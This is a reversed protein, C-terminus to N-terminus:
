GLVGAFAAVAVGGALTTLLGGVLTRQLADVRERLSELERRTSANHAEWAPVPVGASSRITAELREGLKDLGALLETRDAQRAEELRLVDAKRDADVRDIARRLEWGNPVDDRRRMLVDDNDM